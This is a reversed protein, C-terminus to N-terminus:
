GPTGSKAQRAWALMQEAWKEATATDLDLITFRRGERIRVRLLRMGSEFSAEQLVIERAYPAELRAIDTLAPDSV